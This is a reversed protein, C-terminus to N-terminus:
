SNTTCLSPFHAPKMKTGYSSSLEFKTQFYDVARQCVDVWLVKGGGHMAEDRLGRVFGNDAVLVGDFKQDFDRRLRRMADMINASGRADMTFSSRGLPVAGLDVVSTRAKKSQPRASPDSPGENGEVEAPRPGPLREVEFNAVSLLEAPWHEQGLVTPELMAPLGEQSAVDLTLECWGKASQAKCSAIGVEAMVSTSSIVYAPSTRSARLYRPGAVACECIRLAACEDALTAQTVLKSLRDQRTESGVARRAVRWVSLIMGVAVQTTTKAFVVVQPPSPPSPAQKDATGVQTCARPRFEKPLVLPKPRPNPLEEKAVQPAAADDKCVRQAAVRWANVRSTRGGSPGCYTKRQAAMTHMLSNYWNAGGGVRGSAGPPRGFGEQKRACQMFSIMRPAMASLDDVAGAFVDGLSHRPCAVSVDAGEDKQAPTSEVDKPQGICANLLTRGSTAEEDSDAVHPDISEACLASSQLNDLFQMVSGGPESSPGPLEQANEAETEEPWVARGDAVWKAYHSQLASTSRRPSATCLSMLRLAKQLARQGVAQAQQAELPNPGDPVPARSPKRSQKRHIDDTVLVYDRQSFQNGWAAAMPSRRKKGLQVEINWEVHRRPVYPSETPWALLRGAKHETLSMLNRYTDGALFWDPGALMSGLQLAYHGFANLEFRQEMSLAPDLWPAMITAEIFCLVVTGYADWSLPAFSEPNLVVAAERDSQADTGRYANPSLGNGLMWTLDVWLDGYYMTRAGTRLQGVFNKQTHAPDNGGGVYSGDYRLIRIPWEPLEAIIEPEADKFFPCDKVDARDFAKPWGLFCQNLVTYAAHNDYAICLPPAKSKFGQELLKGVIWLMDAKGLSSPAPLICASYADGGSSWCDAVVCDLILPALWAPDLTAAEEQPIFGRSSAQDRSWSGGVIGVKDRLKAAHFARNAYTEDIYWVTRRSPIRGGHGRFMLLDICDINARLVDDDDIALFPSPLLGAGAGAVEVQCKLATNSFMLGFSRLGETNCGMSALAIGADLLRSRTADDYGPNRNTACGRQERELKARMAFLLAEAHTSQFKGAALDAALELRAAGLTGQAIHTSLCGTLARWAAASPDRVARILPVVHGTIFEKMAATNSVNPRCVFLRHVDLQLDELSQMLMDAVVSPGDERVYDREYLDKSFQEIDNQFKLRRKLLEVRDMSSAFKIIKDTERRSNAISLCEHCCGMSGLVTAQPPRQAEDELNERSAGAVGQRVGTCKRSRAVLSASRNDSIIVLFGDVNQHYAAWQACSRQLRGLRSCALHQQPIKDFDIGRCEESFVVLGLSHADADRLGGTCRLGGARHCASLEHQNLYWSTSRRMALFTHQHKNMPGCASCLVPYKKGPLLTYQEGRATLAENLASTRAGRREPAIVPLALQTTSTAEDGAQQQVAMEPQPTAPAVQGESSGPEVQVCQKGPLVSRAVDACVVCRSLVGSLAEGKMAVALRPLFADAFPAKWPCRVLSTWVGRHHTQWARYTLGASCCQARADVTPSTSRKAKKPPTCTTAQDLEPREQELLEVRRKIPTVTTSAEPDARSADLHHLDVSGDGHESGHGRSAPVEVDPEEGSGVLSVCCMDRPPSAIDHRAHEERSQRAEAVCAAGASGVVAVPVTTAMSAEPDERSVLHHLDVSCGGHESGHGRPARVEVDPEKGSGVLGVSRINRPPSATDHRAHEEGSQPKSAVCAAGPSGVVTAPIAPAKEAPVAEAPSDAGFCVEFLRQWRRDEAISVQFRALDDRLEQVVDLGRPSVCTINEEQHGDFVAFSFMGCDGQALVEVPRLRLPSMRECLRFWARRQEWITETETQVLSARVAPPLDLELHNQCIKTFLATGVAKNHAAVDELVQAGSVGEPIPMAPVWHNFSAIDSLGVPEYDARLLIFVHRAGEGSIVGPLADPPGMDAVYLEVPAVALEAGARDVVLSLQRGRVHCYTIMDFLELYHGMQRVKEANLQIRSATTNHAPSTHGDLAPRENDALAHPGTPEPLPSNCALREPAEASSVTGQPGMDSIGLALQGTGSHLSPLHTHVFGRTSWTWTSSPADWWAVHWSGRLGAVDQGVHNCKCKWRGTRDEFKADAVQEKCGRIGCVAPVSPADNMRGRSKAHTHQLRNTLGPLAAAHRPLARRSSGM